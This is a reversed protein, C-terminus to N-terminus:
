KSKYTRSKYQTHSNYFFFPVSKKKEARCVSVLKLIFCLCFIMQKGTVDKLIYCKKRSAAYTLFAYENNHFTQKHKKSLSVLLFLVINRRSATSAFLRIKQKEKSLPSHVTLIYLSIQKRQPKQKPHCISKQNVILLTSPFSQNTHRTLNAVVVVFFLSINIVEDVEIIDDDSDPARNPDDEHIDHLELEFVDAMIIFKQFIWAGCM